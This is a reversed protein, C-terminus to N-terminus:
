RKSNLVMQLMNLMSIVLNVVLLITFFRCLKHYADKFKSPVVSFYYKMSLYIFIAEYVKAGDLMYVPALNLLALASSLAFIYRCLKELVALTNLSLIGSLPSIVRFHSTEVQQYLSPITGFYIVDPDEDSEQFRFVKIRILHERSEEQVPEDGDQQMPAVCIDDENECQKICPTYKTVDRAIMCTRHFEPGSSLFAEDKVDFCLQREHMKSCCADGFTKYSETLVKRPVCYGDHQQMMETLCKTWAEQNPTACHGVATIYASQGHLLDKLPSDDDIREVFVGDHGNMVELNTEILSTPYGSSCFFLMIVLVILCLVINHWAGACFIRLRGLFSSRNLDMTPLVVYASPFMFFLNFGVADTRIKDAAAAIAHGFEHVVACIFLAIIMHPIDGVPVNVGPILMVLSMDTSSPQHQLVDTGNAAPVSPGFITNGTDIGLISAMAGMKTVVFYVVHGVLFLSCVVSLILSILTGVNFWIRLAKQYKQGLKMLMGSFKDTEYGVSGLSHTCSTQDLVKQYTKEGLVYKVITFPVWLLALLCIFLLTYM